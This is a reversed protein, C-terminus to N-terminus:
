EIQINKEVVVLMAKLEINTKQILLSKQDVFIGKKPISLLTLFDNSIIIAANWPFDFPFFVM